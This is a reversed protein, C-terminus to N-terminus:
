QETAELSVLLDGQDVRDGASFHVTTVVADAAAVIKHEMKMAEVVMLTQGEEVEDGVAVEVAIVTGPLPCVPGGGVQDTDFSHFRPQLEFSASGFPSRVYILDGDVQTHIEHRVGDIELVQRDVSRTLPRVGIRRRDDESMSGDDLPEPFPGVAVDAHDGCMVLETQFEVDGTL